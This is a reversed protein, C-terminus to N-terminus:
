YEVQKINSTCSKGKFTSDEHMDNVQPKNNTKQKKPTKKKKFM